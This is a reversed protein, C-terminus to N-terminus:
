ISDMRKAKSPVRIKDPQFKKYNDTHPMSTVYGIKTWSM